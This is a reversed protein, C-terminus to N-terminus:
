AYPNRLKIKIGLAKSYPLARDIAKRVIEGAVEAPDKGRPLFGIRVAFGYRVLKEAAKVAGTLAAREGDWLITIIKLGAAKLEMLAQLQTPMGPEADLTLNKGFSGIAGIGRWNRDGDIAAQIAWVDPAGEGMVAHAWGEVKARHGNYLYRATSSLRAPFLYKPDAKGTIDRGQFTVLQGDLDRIPIIVRGSFV